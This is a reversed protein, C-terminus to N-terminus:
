DWAKYRKDAQSKDKKEMKELTMLLKHPDYLFIRFLCFHVFNQPSDFSINITFVWALKSYTKCDRILFFNKPM